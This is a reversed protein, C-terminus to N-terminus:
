SGLPFTDMHVHRARFAKKLYTTPFVPSNNRTLYACADSDGGNGYPLNDCSLDRITLIRTLAPQTKMSMFRTGLAHDPPVLIADHKPARRSITM